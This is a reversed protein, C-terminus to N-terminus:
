KLKSEFISKLEDIDKGTFRVNMVTIPQEDLISKFSEFLETRNIINGKKDIFLELINDYKDAANNIVTKTITAVALRPLKTLTCITDTTYKEISSILIQKDNM